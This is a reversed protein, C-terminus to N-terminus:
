WGSAAVFHISYRSVVGNNIIKVRKGYKYFIQHYQPSQTVDYILSTQGRPTSSHRRRLRKACLHSCLPLIFTNIAMIKRKNFNNDLLRPQRVSILYLCITYLMLKVMSLRELRVGLKINVILKIIIWTDM